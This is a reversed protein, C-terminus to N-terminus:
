KLIKELQKLRTDWTTKTTAGKISNYYIKYVYYNINGHKFHVSDKYKNLWTPHTSFKAIYFIYALFVADSNRNYVLERGLETELQKKLGVEKKIYFDYSKKEIQMISKAKSNPNARDRGYNSEIMATMRIVKRMDVKYFTNGVQISKKDEVISFLKEIDKEIKVTSYNYGFCTTFIFLFFFLIRIKVVEM